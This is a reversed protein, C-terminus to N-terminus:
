YASQTYGPEFAPNLVGPNEGGQWHYFPRGGDPSGGNFNSSASFYIYIYIYIHIYIYIYIHIYTYICIYMYTYM